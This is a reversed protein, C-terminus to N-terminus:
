LYNKKFCWRWWPFERVRVFTKFTDNRIKALQESLLLNLIAIVQFTKGIIQHEKENEKEEALPIIKSMKSSTLFMISIYDQGQIKMRVTGHSYSIESDTQRTLAVIGTIAVVQLPLSTYM